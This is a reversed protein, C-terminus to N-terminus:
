DNMNRCEGTKITQDLKTWAAGNQALMQVIEVPKRHWDSM